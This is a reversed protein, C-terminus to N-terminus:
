VRIDSATIIKHVLNTNVLHGGNFVVGPFILKDVVQEVVLQMGHM